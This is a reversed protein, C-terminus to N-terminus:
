PQGKWGVSRCAARTGPDQIRRAPKVEDPEMGLYTHETIAECWALADADCLKSGTATVLCVPEPKAAAQQQQAGCGALAITVALAAVITKM